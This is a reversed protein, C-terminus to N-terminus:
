GARVLDFILFYPMRTADELDPRSVLAEESPSPERLARVQFGAGLIWEFWDELTAHVAPTTFDYAWNPWSYEMPGRNFYGDLCLWRKRGVEDREWARYPTDSCPHTISAVFRGQPRLVSYVARLVRAVEPMDQLAVCSTAADFSGAPFLTDIEAADGVRYDIGLPTMAEQNRAHEIMRSSIDVGVVRAGRHAMKRAFYGAGCGVDLLNVAEVESCVAVQAPGLFEYRYYDRGTAQGHAYANAARDWARTVSEADFKVPQKEM